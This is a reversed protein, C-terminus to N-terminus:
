PKKKKIKREPMATIRLIKIKSMDNGGFRLYDYGGDIFTENLCKCQKFDHRDFSVLVTGCSLCEIINPYARKKPKPNLCQNQSNVNTINQYGVRLEGASKRGLKNSSNKKSKM